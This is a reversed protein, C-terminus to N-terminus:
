RLSWRTEVNQEFRHEGPELLLRAGFVDEQSTPYSGQFSTRPPGETPETVTLSISSVDGLQRNAAGAAVKANREAEKIAKVLAEGTAAQAQSSFFGIDAIRVPGAIPFERIYGPIASVDRITVTVSKAAIYGILPGRVERNGERTIEYKATISLSTTQLDQSDVGKARLQSLLKQVAEANAALAATPEKEQAVVNFRMWARDPVKGVSARASVSITSALEQAEGAVSGLLGLSAAVAASIPVVRSLGHLAM